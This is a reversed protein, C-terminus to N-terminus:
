LAITVKRGWLVRPPAVRYVTAMLHSRYARSLPVKEELDVSTVHGMSDYECRAVCKQQVGPFARISRALATLFRAVAPNSSSASEAREESSRSELGEGNGTGNGSSGIGVGTVVSGPQGTTIGSSVSAEAASAMASAGSARSHEPSQLSSRAESKVPADKKVESKTENQPPRQEQPKQAVRPAEQAPKIEPAPPREPAPKASKVVPPVEIKTEEKKHTQPKPVEKKQSAPAVKKEPEKKIPKEKVKEKTKTDKKVAKKEKPTYREPLGEPDAPAPPLVAQAQQPVSTKPQSAPGSAMSVFDECLVEVLEEPIRLVGGGRAVGHPMVLTVSRQVRVLLLLALILYVVLVLFCIHRFLKNQAPLMRQTMKSFFV